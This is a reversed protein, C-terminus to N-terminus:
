NILERVWTQIDGFNKEGLKPLLVYQGFYRRPSVPPEYLLESGLVNASLNNRADFALRALSAGEESTMDTVVSEGVIRILESVKDPNFLLQTSLVKDKIASIIKQQRAARALDNGELIDLSHRSRAFKLATAGDMQQLGKQFSITEYRCAYKPDGGCLDNEKGSIPYKSDTFSREVDVEVGGLADILRVFGGFDVLVAYDIEVGSVESIIDKAMELGAQTGAKQSGELFAHNVKLQKDVLYLDRPFSIMTAKPPNKSLSLLIITDTLEPADHGEGGRGLLLINTRGDTNKVLAESSFIFNVAPTAFQTLRYRHLLMGVGVFFILLALTVIFITGVRLLLMHKMARRKIKSVKVRWNKFSPKRSEM